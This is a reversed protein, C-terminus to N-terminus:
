YYDKVFWENFIVESFKTINGSNFFFTNNFVYIGAYSEGILLLENKKLEPFKTEYIGNLVHYIDLPVQYRLISQGLFVFKFDSTNM